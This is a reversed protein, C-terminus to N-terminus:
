DVLKLLAFLTLSPGNSKVNKAKLGARVVTHDDVLMVRTKSM